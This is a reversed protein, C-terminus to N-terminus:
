LPGTSGLGLATTVVLRRQCAKADRQPRLLPLPKRSCRLGKKAATCRSGRTLLIYLLDYLFGGAAPPIIGGSGQSPFWTSSFCRQEPPWFIERM